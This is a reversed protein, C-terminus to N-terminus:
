QAPEKNEAPEAQVNDKRFEFAEGFQCKRREELSILGRGHMRKCEYSTYNNQKKFGTGTCASLAFVALLMMLPIKMGFKLTTM